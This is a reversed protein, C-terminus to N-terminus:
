RIAQCVQDDYIMQSPYFRTVWNESGPEKKNLLDFLVDSEISEWYPTYLPTIHVWTQGPKFPFPNGNEDMFRVPRLKGTTKEYTEGWTTWFIRYIKGDRFLLAPARRMSILDIDFAVENCMRHNVFLVVINEYALPEDNINDKAQVFTAGDANDQFRHYSGSQSDYKWHVQNLLSYIYWFSHAPNGAAPINSDFMMGQLANPGLVNGSDRVMEELKTVDIMASNIDDKDSGYINSYESLNKAVGSYASSMVLIGNYLQRLSQYPLRGSRIPGVKPTQALEGPKGEFLFPFEGYFLALFRSMGEGIYLEYVMPSFSLGSQNNRASVPFNTMSLLAPPLTLNQPDSVELGTLPNIGFPYEEPGVPQDVENIQQTDMQILLEHPINTMGDAKVNPGKLLNDVVISGPILEEYRSEAQSVQPNRSLNVDIRGNSVLFSSIILLKYLISM